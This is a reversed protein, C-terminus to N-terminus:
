RRNFGPIWLAVLRAPATVGQDRLWRDAERVARDGDEGGLMAGHARRAAVAFAHMDAGEFGVAAAALEELAREPQGELDALGAELLKAKPAIWDMGERALRRGADRATAMHRRREDGSAAEAAALHARARTWVAEVRIYQIRLVMAKRSREWGADIAAFTAESQREYIGANALAIMQWYHQFNFQDPLRSVAANSGRRTEDPDDRFLPDMAALGNRLTTGALLDGHEEADALMQPIQQSFARLEGTWYRSLLTYYRANFLEWSMGVQREIRGEAEQSYAISARWRGMLYAAIGATMRHLAQARDSGLEEALVRCRALLAEVKAEQTGGAVSRYGAEAILGRCVRYPEGMRLALLLQRAQFDSARIPDVLALGISVAWCTDIRILDERPIDREDRPRFGLGRLRVRARTLGLSILARTPTKALRMGIPQLVQDLVKMGDAIHGSRLLQEAARRTLELAVSQHATTAAQLYVRGADAGRGANALADAQRARLEALREGQPQELDIAVGYLQAAHDFAVAQDARRAAELAHIAAAAPDGAGRWHFALSEPDAEPVAELGIALRRHCITRAEPALRSLVADRVRGHYPEVRDHARVGTTRVLFAGRLVAVWRAYENFDAAEAARAAAGQVLPAGALAILSLLRRIPSPLSQVRSWVAEDLRLRALPQGPHERAYRVLEAIFLPHGDAEHAVAA